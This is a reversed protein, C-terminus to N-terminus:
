MRRVEPMELLLKRWAELGGVDEFISEANGAESPNIFLQRSLKGLQKRMQRLEKSETTGGQFPGESGYIQIATYRLSRGGLAASFVNESGWKQHADEKEFAFTLLEAAKLLFAKWDWTKPEPIAGKKAALKCFALFDKLVTYRTADASYLGRM